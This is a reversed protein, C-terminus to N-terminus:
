RGLLEKTRARFAAVVGHPDGALVAAQMASGTGGVAHIASTHVGVNGLEEVGCIPCTSGYLEGLRLGDHSSYHSNKWHSNLAKDNRFWARCKPCPIGSDLAPQTPAPPKNAPNAAKPTGAEAPRGNKAVVETLDAFLFVHCDDCLDVTREPYGPLSLNVSQSAEVREETLAHRDCWLRILFEQAM